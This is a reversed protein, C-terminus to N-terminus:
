PVNQDFKRNIRFRGVRGLRYRNADQFKERFLERAKELQQPNGPRLRTYIKLLAAEHSDTGDENLSNLVVRDKPEAMASVEGAMSAIIKDFKDATFPKGADLYVEGTEPDIVDEMAIYPPINAEMDGILKARAKDNLKVKEISEAFFERLINATSTYAPDMARLLTLASFKGSQDIRVGLADKKSVNIEIWSGREPIIRCSHMDKDA